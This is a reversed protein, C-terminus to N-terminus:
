INKPMTPVPAVGGGGLSNEHSPIPAPGPVIAASPVMIIPVPASPAAKRAKKTRKKREYGKEKRKSKGKGKGKNKAGMWPARMWEFVDTEQRISGERSLSANDAAVYSALLVMSFCMILSRLNLAMKNSATERPRTKDAPETAAPASQGELTTQRSLIRRCQESAAVWANSSQENAEDIKGALGCGVSCVELNRCCTGARKEERQKRERRELWL